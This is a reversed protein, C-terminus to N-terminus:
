PSVENERIEEKVPMNSLVVLDQDVGAVEVQFVARFSPDDWCPFAMRASSAEFHCSAAVQGSPQVSRHFGRMLSNIKGAYDIRITGTVGSKLCRGLTVRLEEKDAVVDVKEVPIEEDGEFVRVGAIDLDLSNLRVLNTSKKVEVSIVAKGSFTLAELDPVIRLQYHKPVLCRPLRHDSM